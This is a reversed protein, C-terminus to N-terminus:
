NKTVTHRQMAFTLALSVSKAPYNTPIPRYKSKKAAEILSNDFGEDSSTEAIYCNTLQGDKDITVVLTAMNEFSKVPPYWNSKISKRVQAIYDELDPSMASNEQIIVKKDDIQNPVNADSAFVVGSLMIAVTLFKIISIKKKM